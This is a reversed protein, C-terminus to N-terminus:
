PNEVGLVRPARDSLGDAVLFFKIGNGDLTVLYSGTVSLPERGLNTVIIRSYTETGQQGHGPVVQIFGNLFSIEIRPRDRLFKVGQLVIAVTGMVAGWIALIETLM